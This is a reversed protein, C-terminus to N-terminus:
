KLYFPNEGTELTHEIEEDTMNLSYGVTFICQRWGQISENLVKTCIAKKIMCDEYDEYLEKSLKDKESATKIYFIIMIVLLIIVILNVAFKWNIKNQEAM